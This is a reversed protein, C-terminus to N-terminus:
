PIQSTYKGQGQKFKIDGEFSIAVRQIHQMGVNIVNPQQQQKKNWVLLSTLSELTTTAMNIIATSSKERSSLTMVSWTDIAL